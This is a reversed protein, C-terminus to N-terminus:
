VLINELEYLSKIRFTPKPGSYGNEGRDILVDIVGANRAALVDEVGDGIYLAKEPEIGLVKLCHNLYYPNPKQKEGSPDFSSVVYDFKEKGIMNIKFPIIHDPSGTVVGTIYGMSKLEGIFDVDDYVITYNKRIEPNDYKWFSEWFSTPEIGFLKIIESDRDMGFWLRDIHEEPATIGFDDLARGVVMYRYEKKTHILTGDMDALIGDIELKKYKPTMTVLDVIFYAIFVCRGM